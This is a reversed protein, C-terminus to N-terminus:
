ADPKYEITLGSLKEVAEGYKKKLEDLALQKSFAKITELPKGEFEVQFTKITFVKCTKEDM